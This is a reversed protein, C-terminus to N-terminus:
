QTVKTDDGSTQEEDIESIWMQGYTFFEGTVYVCEDKSDVFGTCTEWQKSATRYKAVLVNKDNLKLMFPSFLLNIDLFIWRKRSLEPNNSHIPHHVGDNAGRSGNERRTVVELHTPNVCRKNRCVHDITLGNPIPGVHRMYSLRHGLQSNQEIAFCSYGMVNLAGYWVWCGTEPDHSHKNNFRALESETMVIREGDDTVIVRKSMDGKRQPTARSRPKRKRVIGDAKKGKSRTDLAGTM